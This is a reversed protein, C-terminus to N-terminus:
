GAQEFAFVHHPVVRQGAVLAAFDLETFFRIHVEDVVPSGRLYACPAHTPVHATQEAGISFLDGGPKRPHFLHM